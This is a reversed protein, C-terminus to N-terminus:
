RVIDHRMATFTRAIDILDEEQAGASPFVIAGATTEDSWSCLIEGDEPTQTWGCLTKGGLPGPEVDRDLVTSTSLGGLAEEVLRLRREEAKGPAADAALVLAHHLDDGADVDPVRYRALLAKQGPALAGPDYRDDVFRVRVLGGAEKPRTVHREGPPSKPEKPEPPEPYEMVCGTLLLAAALGTGVLRRRGGM